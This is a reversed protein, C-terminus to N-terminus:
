IKWISRRTSQVLRSFYRSPSAILLSMLNFWNMSRDRGDALGGEFFAGVAIVLILYFVVGSGSGVFSIRAVPVGWGGFFAMEFGLFESGMEM